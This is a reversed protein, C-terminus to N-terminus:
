YGESPRDTVERERAAKTLDALGPWRRRAGQRTIGVADGLDGYDAGAKAAARAAVSAWDELEARLTECSGLLALWATRQQEPTGPDHASFPPQDPGLQMRRRAWVWALDRVDDAMCEQDAPDGTRTM